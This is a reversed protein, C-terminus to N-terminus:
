GKKFMRRVKGIANCVVLGASVLLYGSLKFKTDHGFRRALEYAFPKAILKAVGLAVQQRAALLEAKTKWFFIKDIVHIKGRGHMYEVLVDAWIRYGIYTSKHNQLLWEGYKQDWEFIEYDLHGLDYLATCIVSGGGGGGGGGSDTFGGGADGSGNSSDYSPALPPPDVYGNDGWDVSDQSVSITLGNNVSAWQGDIKVWTSLRSTYAGNVKLKPVIRKFEGNDKVFFGSTRYFALTAYGNGGQPVPLTATPDVQSRTTWIQSGNQLIQAGIAGPGGTNIGYIRVTHWGATVTYTNSWVGNYSPAYVIEVDDVYLWGYNDVALDFQYVQTDPFYVKYTYNGNGQWVSYNNLLGSWAGNSGGNPYYNYGYTNPSGGYGVHNGPYYTDTVGGPVTGSCYEGVLLPQEGLFSNTGNAGGQGGNDGPGSAGPGGGAMGGGGGGGGGEDGNGNIGGWGKGQDLLSLGDKFTHNFTTGAHNGNSHNGGGGGGGGGGAVARARGDVKIVTAGGGGGGAGSWGSPGPNGGAGGSFGNESKGNAGSGYGSGSGGPGGGQGVYVEVLEGPNVTMNGSLFGGGAGNGGIHSDNGGCGGGAGWIKFGITHSFGTSPMNFYYRGGVYPLTVYYVTDLIGAM